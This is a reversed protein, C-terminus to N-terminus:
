AKPFIFEKNSLVIGIKCSQVNLVTCFIYIVSKTLKYSYELFILKKFLMYM